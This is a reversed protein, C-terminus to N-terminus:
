AVPESESLYRLNRIQRWMRLERQTPASAIRNHFDLHREKHVLRIDANEPTPNRCVYCQCVASPSLVTM